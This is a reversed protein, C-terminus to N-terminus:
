LQLGVRRLRVTTEPKGSHALAKEITSLAGASKVLLAREAAHRVSWRSSQLREIETAVSHATALSVDAWAVGCGALWLAM